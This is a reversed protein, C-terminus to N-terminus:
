LRVQSSVDMARRLASAIIEPPHAGVLLPRRNLIFAPVGSLGARRAAEEDQSVQLAGEDSQLFASVQAREMGAEVAVDGLVDDSGIDRGQAFYARFLGEVLPDQSGTQRQRWILRHANFTNPTRVILDFHFSIGESDGMETMQADLEDSREQSGFKRTRYDRRDMGTKPMDPNLEFPLWTVRITEPAIMTLARELRRKGVLCWPCIVDIFVLLDAAPANM